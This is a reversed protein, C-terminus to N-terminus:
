KELAHEGKMFRLVDAKTKPLILGGGYSKQKLKGHQDRLEGEGSTYYKGRKIYKDYSKGRSTLIDGVRIDDYFESVGGGPNRAGPTRAWGGKGAIYFGVLGTFIPPAIIGDYGCKKAYEDDYWVPNDDPIGEAYARIDEAKVGFKNPNETWEAAAVDIEDWFTYNEIQTPELFDSDFARQKETKKYKEMEKLHDVM